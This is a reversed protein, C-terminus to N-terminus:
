DIRNLARSQHTKSYPRDIKTVPTSLKPIVDGSILIRDPKMTSMIPIYKKSREIMRSSSSTLMAILPNASIEMGNATKKKMSCEVPLFKNEIKPPTGSNVGIRSPLSRHWPANPCGRNAPIIHAAKMGINM